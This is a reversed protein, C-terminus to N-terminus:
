ATDLSSYKNAGHWLLDDWRREGCRRPILFAAAAPGNTRTEVSFSGVQSDIDVIDVVFMDKAVKNRTASLFLVPCLLCVNASTALHNSPPAFRSPCGYTSSAARLRFILLSRRSWFPNASGEFNSVEYDWHDMRVIFTVM